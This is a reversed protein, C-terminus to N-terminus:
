RRWVTVVRATLPDDRDPYEYIVVIYGLVVMWSASGSNRRREDHADLLGTEIDTQTFGFQRAKDIAHLTWSVFIPDATM